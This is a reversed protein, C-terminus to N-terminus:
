ASKMTFGSLFVDPYESYSNDGSFPSTILTYIVQSIFTSQPDGTPSLDLTFSLSETTNAFPETSVPTFGLELRTTAKMTDRVGETSDQTSAIFAVSQVQSCLVDNARQIYAIRQAMEHRIEEKAAELQEHFEILLSNTNGVM